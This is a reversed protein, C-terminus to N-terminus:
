LDAVVTAPASRACARDTVSMTTPQLSQNPQKRRRAQLRLSILLGTLAGFVVGVAAALWFSLIGLQSFQLMEMEGGSCLLAAAFFVFPAKRGSSPCIIVASIVFLATPFFTRIVIPAFGFVRTILDGGGHASSFVSSLAFWTVLSLTFAIPFAAFWRLLRM